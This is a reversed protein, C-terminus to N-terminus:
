NRGSALEQKVRGAVLDAVFANGADNYHGASVGQRLFLESADTRRRFADIADIFAIHQEDAVQRAFASWADEGALETQTPLLALLLLSSRSANLRKLDAFVARVVGQTEADLIAQQGPDAPRYREHIRRALGAARTDMLARQVAILWPFTTAFRSVPVSETTLGGHRLGITPKAVGLFTSLEMRHFDDSIFAFVHVQHPLGRTDRVFRLYSQDVGYSTQGLNVPEIRPDQTALQQCWTHRDDVGDGFTFSDGSCIVRIRGPAVTPAVDSVARFRQSNTRVGIGPGFVDPLSVNARNVWGLEPDYESYTRTFWAFVSVDRLVLIISASGELTFALCLFVAAYLAADRIWARAPQLLGLSDVGIYQESHLLSRGM